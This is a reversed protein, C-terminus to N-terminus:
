EDPRLSRGVKELARVISRRSGEKIHPIKVLEKNSLSTLMGVDSIGNEKLIRVIRNPMPLIEVDEDVPAPSKEDYKLSTEPIRPKHSYFAQSTREWGAEVLPQIPADMECKVLVSPARDDYMLHSISTVKPFCNSSEDVFLTEGERPVVPWEVVKRCSRGTSYRDVNSNKFDFETKYEDISIVLFIM